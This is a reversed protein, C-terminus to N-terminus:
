VIKISNNIPPVIIGKLISLQKHMNSLYDYSYLLETNNYKVQECGKHFMIASNSIASFPLSELRLIEEGVLTYLENFTKLIEEM